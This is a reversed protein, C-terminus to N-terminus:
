SLDSLGDAIKKLITPDDEPAIKSGDGTDPVPASAAGVLGAMKKFPGGLATRLKTLESPEAAKPLPKGTRTDVHGDWAAMAETPDMTSSATEHTDAPTVITYTFRPSEM